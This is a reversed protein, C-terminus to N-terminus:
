DDDSWEDSQRAFWADVEAEAKDEPATGVFIEIERQELRLRIRAEAIGSAKLAKLAREIEAQTIRARNTVGCPTVDCHLDPLYDALTSARVSSLCASRQRATAASIFLSPQRRGSVPM